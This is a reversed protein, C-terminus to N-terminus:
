VYILYVRANENDDHSGGECCACAADEYERSCRTRNRVRQSHCDIQDLPNLTLACCPGASPRPIIAYRRRAAGSARAAGRERQTYARQVTQRSQFVAGDHTNRADTALDACRSTGPSAFRMGARSGRGHGERDLYTVHKQMRAVPLSSAPLILRRPTFLVSTCAM